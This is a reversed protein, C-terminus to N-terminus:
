REVNRLELDGLCVGRLTFESGCEADVEGCPTNDSKDEENTRRLKARDTSNRQRGVLWNSIM